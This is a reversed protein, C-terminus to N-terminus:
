KAADLLWVYYPPLHGGITTQYDMLAEVAMVNMEPAGHRSTYQLVPSRGLFVSCLYTHMSMLIAYSYPVHVDVYQYGESRSSNNKENRRLTDADRESVYIQHEEDSDEWRNRLHSLRKESLDKRALVGDLIRKHKPTGFKVDISWVM